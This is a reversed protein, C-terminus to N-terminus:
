GGGTVPAPCSLYSGPVADALWVHENGRYFRFGDRAADGARVGLVLPYAARRRGVQAAMGPQVSLHVYQRGMPRLGEVQIVAWARPSTGHYLLAPPVAEEQALRTPVSHGYLARIRDQGADVDYRRKPSAGAMAVLDDRGLHRWEGGRAQLAELLQGLPVWGQEDLELEYLWPEHRLAHAVVKSLREHALAM